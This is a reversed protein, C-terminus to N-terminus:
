ERCQAKGAEFQLRALETFILEFARSTEDNQILLRDISRDIRENARQEKVEVAHELAQHSAKLASIDQVAGFVATIVISIITALLGLVWLTFQRSTIGEWLKVM